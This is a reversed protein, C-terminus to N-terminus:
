ATHPGLRYYLSRIQKKQTPTTETREHCLVENSHSQCLSAATAGNISRAQSGGDAMPAGRSLCFVFFFFSFSHHLVSSTVAPSPITLVHTSAPTFHSSALSSGLFAAAELLQYLGSLSVGWVRWSSCLGASATINDCHSGCAGRIELVTWSPVKTM